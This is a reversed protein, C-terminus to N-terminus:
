PCRLDAPKVLVEVGDPASLETLGKPLAVRQRESEAIVIFVRGPLCVDNALELPTDLWQVPHGSYYILSSYIDLRYGLIRDGPRWAAAIARAYASFMAHLLGRTQELTPDTPGTADVQAAEARAQKVVVGPAVDNQVLADSWYALQTMNSSVTNLFQRDLASCTHTVQREGAQARSSSVLFTAGFVVAACVFTAAMLRRIKM